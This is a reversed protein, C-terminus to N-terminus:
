GREGKQIFLNFFEGNRHDGILSKGTSRSILAVLDARLGDHNGIIELITGEPIEKLRKQFRLLSIPCNADRIDMLSDAIIKSAEM